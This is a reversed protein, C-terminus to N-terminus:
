IPGPFPPVRKFLLARNNFQQLEYPFKGNHFAGNDEMLGRMALMFSKSYSALYDLSQMAFSGMGVNEYYQKYQLLEEGYVVNDLFTYLEHYFNEEDRLAYTLRKLYDIPDVYEMAPASLHRRLDDFKHDTNMLVINETM